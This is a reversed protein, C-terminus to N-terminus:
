HFERDLPEIREIHMGFWSARVRLQMIGSRPLSQAEALSACYRGPFRGDFFAGRLEHRCKRGGDLLRMEATIVRPEGANRTYIDPLSRGIALWACAWSATLLLFFVTAYSVTSRVKRLRALGRTRILLVVGGILTAASLWASLASWGDASRFDAIAGHMALGMVLFVLVLVKVQRRREAPALDRFRQTQRKLEALRAREAVHIRGDGIAKRWLDEATDRVLDPDQDAHALLLNVERDSAGGSLSSNLQELWGNAIRPQALTIALFRSDGRVERRLELDAVNSWPIEGGPLQVGRFDFTAIWRRSRYLGIAYAILMIPASTMALIVLLEVGGFYGGVVAGLLIVAALINALRLCKALSNGIRLSDPTAPSELDDQQWERLIQQVRKKHYLRVPGFYFGVACAVLLAAIWPKDHNFAVIAGLGAGVGVLLLLFSILKDGSTNLGAPDIRRRPPRRSM